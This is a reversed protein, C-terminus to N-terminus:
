ITYREKLQNNNRLENLMNVMHAHATSADQRSDDSFNSHFEMNSNLDQDVADIM